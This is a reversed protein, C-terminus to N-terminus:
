KAPRQEGLQWLPRLVPYTLIFWLGLPGVVFGVLGSFVGITDKIMNPKDMIFPYILVITVHILFFLVTGLLGAVLARKWGIRPTAAILSLLPLLAMSLAPLQLLMPLQRAGSRFVVPDVANPRDYELFWGNVIPSLVQVTALAASRYYAGFNSLWWLTVLLAFALLFILAFRWKM